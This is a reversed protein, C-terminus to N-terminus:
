DEIVCECEDFFMQHKVCFELNEDMDQPIDKRYQAIKMRGIVDPSALKECVWGIASFAEDADPNYEAIIDPIDFEAGLGGTLIHGLMSVTNRLAFYDNVGDTSDLVMDLIFKRMEDFKLRDM